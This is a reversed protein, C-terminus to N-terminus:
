APCAVTLIITNEDTGISGQIILTSIHIEMHFNERPTMCYLGDKNRLQGKPFFLILLFCPFLHERVPCMKQETDECSLVCLFVIELNMKIALKRYKVGLICGLNSSSCHTNASIKHVAQM